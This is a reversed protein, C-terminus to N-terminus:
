WWWGGFGGMGRDQEIRTQKNQYTAELGAEEEFVRGSGTPISMKSFALVM